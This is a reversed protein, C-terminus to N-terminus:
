KGIDRVVRVSKMRGYRSMAQVFLLPSSGGGRGHILCGVVWCGLVLPLSWEGQLVRPLCLPACRGFRTTTPRARSAASSSRATPTAPPRPTASRTTQFPVPPFGWTLSLFRLPTTPPPSPLPSARACLGAQSCILARLVANDHPAVDAGDISGATPSPSPSLM